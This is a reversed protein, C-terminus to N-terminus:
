LAYITFFTTIVGRVYLALSLAWGVSAIFHNRLFSCVTVAYEVVEVM